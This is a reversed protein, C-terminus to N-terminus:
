ANYIEMELRQRAVDPDDVSEFGNIFALYHNPLAHEQAGRLVHEKYWHYPKVSMDIRTAAYMFADIHGDGTQVRISKEEYGIGLGEVRDLAPKESRPLHYLVGIVRDSEDASEYADCKASLDVHSFKHFALRHGALVGTGIIRASPVRAQLRCSSMNSGYAFYTLMESM